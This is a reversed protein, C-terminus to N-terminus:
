KFLGQNQSLNIVPPSPSSLPHSPQIADGVWHVHTQIFEPLQHYVPLGPTSCDMPQLTDPVISHSFQGTIEAEAKPLVGGVGTTWSSPRFGYYPVVTLDLTEKSNRAKYMPGTHVPWWQRLAEARRLTLAESGRSGEPTGQGHHSYTHTFTRGQPM